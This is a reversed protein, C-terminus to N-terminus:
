AARRHHENASTAGNLVAGVITVGFQRLDDALHAVRPVSTADRCALM